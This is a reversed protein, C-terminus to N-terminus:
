CYIAVKDRARKLVRKEAVLKRRLHRRTRTRAANALQRKTRRVRSKWRSRTRRAALCKASPGSSGSTTTTPTPTVTASPPGTALADAPELRLQWQGGLCGGKASLYYPGPGSLSANIHDFTDPSASASDDYFGTDTGVLQISPQDDQDDYYGCIRAPATVSLDMQHVGPTLYFVFWDEDNDTDSAGAYNVGGRLPGQAQDQSENPETTAIRGRDLSGSTVAEAPSVTFSYTGVCEDEAVRLFYRNTGPPTSYDFSLAKGDTDLLRADTCPDDYRNGESNFAVHLQQQGAVWFVYYDVDQATDIRGSVATGGVVGGEAQSIVDNPETDAAAQSTAACFLM